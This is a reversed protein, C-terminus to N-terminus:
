TDDLFREIAAIGGYVDVESPDATSASAREWAARAEARVAETNISKFAKVVGRVGSRDSDNGDNVWTLGGEAEIGGGRVLGDGMLYSAYARFRARQPMPETEAWGITQVVFVPFEEDVVTREAHSIWGAVHSLPTSIKLARNGPRRHLFEFGTDDWVDAVAVSGHLTDFRIAPVQRGYVAHDPRWMEQGWELFAWESAFVHLAAGRSRVEGTPSEGPAHSAVYLLIPTVGVLEDELHRGWGSPLPSPM